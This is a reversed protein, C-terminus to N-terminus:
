AKVTVTAVMGAEYHGPLHCGLLVERLKSFHYTLLYKPKM